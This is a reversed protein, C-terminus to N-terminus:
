RMLEQDGKLNYVWTGQRDSKMPYRDKVGSNPTNFTLLEVSTATPAWLRFSTSGKKYTNGLDTGKYTFKKEFEPSSILSGLSIDASGYTPHTIQYLQTLNISRNLTLILETAIPLNPNGTRVNTVKLGGSMSFGNSSRARPKFRKNLTVKVENTAVFKATSIKMKLVPKKTYITKENQVLWVEANGSADFETIFRDDNVDKAAWDNLRVIIGIDKFNKMGDITITVVKGFDDDGTFQVGTESVPTDLSNNDSNKWIWLNWGNYDGGPRQYHVTLTISDPAALAPIGSLFLAFAALVATFIKKM